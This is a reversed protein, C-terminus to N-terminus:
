WEVLVDRLVEALNESTDAENIPRTQLVPNEAKCDDYIYHATIVTYTQTARSTCCDTRLAVIDARILGGTDKEKVNDYTSSLVKTTLHLRSPMKYHPELVSVLHKFEANEM